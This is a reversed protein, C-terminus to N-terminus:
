LNNELQAIFEQETMEMGKFLDANMDLIDADLDIRNFVNILQTM